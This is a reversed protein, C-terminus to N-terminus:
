LLSKWTFRCLHMGPGPSCHHTPTPIASCPVHLCSRPLSFHLAKDTAPSHLPCEQEDNKFHKHKSRGRRIPSVFFFSGSTCCGDSRAACLDARTGKTSVLARSDNEGWPWWRAKHARANQAPVSFSGQAHPAAPFTPSGMGLSLNFPVPAKCFTACPHPDLAWTPVPWCKGM